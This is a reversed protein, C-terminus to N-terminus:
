MKIYSRLQSRTESDFDGIMERDQLQERAEDILSDYYANMERQTARAERYVRNRRRAAGIVNILGVLANVPPGAASTEQINPPIIPLMSVILVFVLIFSSYKIRDRSMM